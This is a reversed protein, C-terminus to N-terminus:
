FLSKIGSELDNMMGEFGGPSGLGCVPSWNRKLRCWGGGVRQCAIGEFSQQTSKFQLVEDFRRCRHGLNNKFIDRPTLTGGTRQFQWSHTQGTPQHDMTWYFTRSYFQLEEKNMNPVLDSAFASNGDELKMPTEAMGPTGNLAPMTQQPVDSPGSFLHYLGFLVAATVILGFSRRFFLQLPYFLVRQLKFYLNVFIRFLLWM